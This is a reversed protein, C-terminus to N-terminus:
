HILPKQRSSRGFFLPLGFAYHLFMCMLHYHYPYPFVVMINKELGFGCIFIVVLLRVSVFESFDSKLVSWMIFVIFITLLHFFLHPFNNCNATGSRTQSAEICTPQRPSIVLAAPHTRKSGFSPIRFHYSHLYARAQGLSVPVVVTGFGHVSAYRM